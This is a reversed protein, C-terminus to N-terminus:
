GEASILIAKATQQTLTSGGQVAGEGSAKKRLTKYSARLTGTFDVGMHDFFDKDESAIFAQVLRKPIQDYPVVKRRENYFEGALVEDDTYVETVIPPWYQDVKPIEPLGQSFKLYVGVVAVLMATLGVLVSWGALKLLRKKWGGKPPVGELVLKRGQRGNRAAPAARAPPQKRRPSTLVSM